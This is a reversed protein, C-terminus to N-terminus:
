LNQANFFFSKKYVDKGGIHYLKPKKKRCPFDKKDVNQTKDM